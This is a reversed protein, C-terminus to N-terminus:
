RFSCAFHDVLILDLADRFLGLAGDLFGGALCRAGPLKLGFALDVLGDALDLFADAVYPPLGLTSVFGKGGTVAIEQLLRRVAGKEKGSGAPAESAVITLNFGTR